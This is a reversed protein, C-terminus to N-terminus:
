SGYTEDPLLIKQFHKPLCSSETQLLGMIEKVQTMLLEGLRPLMLVSYFFIARSCNQQGQISHSLKTNLLRCTGFEATEESLITAFIWCLLM